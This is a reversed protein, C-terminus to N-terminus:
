VRDPALADCIVNLNSSKFFTLFFISFSISEIYNRCMSICNLWSQGLIGDDYWKVSMARADEVLEHVVIRLPAPTTSWQKDCVNPSNRLDLM